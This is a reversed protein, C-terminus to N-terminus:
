ELEGKLIRELHNKRYALTKSAGKLPYGWYALYINEFTEGMRYLQRAREVKHYKAPRQDIGRALRVRLCIEQFYGKRHPELGNVLFANNICDAAVRWEVLREAIRVLRVYRANQEATRSLPARAPKPTHHARANSLQLLETAFSNMLRGQTLLITWDSSNAM